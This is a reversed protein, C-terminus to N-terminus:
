RRPTYGKSRMCDAMYRDYSRSGTMGSGEATTGTAQAQARCADRAAREEPSAAPAPEFPNNISDCAALAPLTLLAIM